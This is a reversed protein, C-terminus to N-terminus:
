YNWCNELKHAIAALHAKYVDDFGGVHIMKKTAPHCYQAQIRGNKHQAVYRLPVRGRVKSNSRNQSPTVWRLNSLLNNGRNRDIHDVEVEGACPFVGNLLLVLRHNYYRKRKLMIRYYGKATPSGASDGPYVGNRPSKIWRLGTVSTPDVEVFDRVENAEAVLRQILARATPDTM